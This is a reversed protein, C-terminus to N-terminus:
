GCSHSVAGGADVIEPAPDLLIRRRNRERLKGFFQAAGASEVFRDLRAPGTEFNM